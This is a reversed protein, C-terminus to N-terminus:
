EKYAEHCAVCAKITRDLHTLIEGMEKSPVAKALEEAADHHAMALEQYKAPFKMGREQQMAQHHKPFGLREHAIGAAKEYDKRSLAEVIADLAELHERMTRKLIERAEPKLGLSVRLDETADSAAADANLDFPRLLGGAVTAIFVTALMLALGTLISGSRRIEM